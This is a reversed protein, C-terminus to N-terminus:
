MGEPINCIKVFIAHPVFQSVICWCFQICVDLIFNRLSSFNRTVSSRNKTDSYSSSRTRSVSASFVCVTLFNIADYTSVFISIGGDLNIATFLGSMVPFGIKIWMSTFIPKTHLSWRSYIIKKWISLVNKSENKFGIFTFIDGDRNVYVRWYLM